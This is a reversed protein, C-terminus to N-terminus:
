AAGQPWRARRLPHKENRFDGPPVGVHQRFTTSFHSQSSFGCESAIQALSGSDSALKRRALDIRSRLVFHHVPMGFSQRFIRAFHAPSYGCMAALDCISLREIIHAEIYDRVRRMAQHSMTQASRSGNERDLLSSSLYTLLALGVVETYLAGNPEGATCHSEIEDMWWAVRRDLFRVPRRLKHLWAPSHQLLELCVAEPIDLVTYRSGKQCSWSSGGYDADAPHFGISGHPLLMPDKNRENIVVRGRRLLMLAPNDLVQLPADRLCPPQMISLPLARTALSPIQKACQLM